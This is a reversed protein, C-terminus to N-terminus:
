DEYNDISPCSCILN